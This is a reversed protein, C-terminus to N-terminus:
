KQINRSIKDLKDKDESTLYGPSTLKPTWNTEDDLREIFDNVEDLSCGFAAAALGPHAICWEKFTM